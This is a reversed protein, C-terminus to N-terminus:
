NRWCLHEGEYRAPLERWGGVNRVITTRLDAWPVAAVAERFECCVIRIARAERTDFFGLIGLRVSHAGLLLQSM